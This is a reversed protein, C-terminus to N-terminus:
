TRQDAQMANWAKLTSKYKLTKMILMYGYDITQKDTIQSDAIECLEKYNEVETFITDVPKNAPYRLGELRTLFTTLDETSIDGYTDFLHTFIELITRTIKNTISNRLARLYKPGIATVIQQILGREVAIVERFLRLNEQHQELLITIQCLM